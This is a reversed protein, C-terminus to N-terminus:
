ITAALERLGKKEESAFDELKAKPQPMFTGGKLL